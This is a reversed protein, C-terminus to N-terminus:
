ITTKDIWKSNGWETADLLDINLKQAAQAGFKLASEKETFVYMNYHKNKVYWLNVQFKSEDLKFVSVYELKPITSRVRKCFPGVMYESILLDKDIDILIAKTMSFSVGGAFFLGIMQVIGAIGKPRVKDLNVNSCVMYLLYIFYIMAMFFLSAVIIRWWPLKGQAVVLEFENDNNM